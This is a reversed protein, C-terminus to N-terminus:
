ADFARVNNIVYNVQKDEMEAYIPLSLITQAQNEAIPFDGPEYGLSKAAEQLHLPIPYNVKTEINKKALYKRLIDRQPHQIIYRHYIPKEYENDIPM